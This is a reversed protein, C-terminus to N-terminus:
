NLSLNPSFDPPFLKAFKPTTVIVEIEGSLFQKIFLRVCEPDIESSLYQAAVEEERLYDAINEAKRESKVM